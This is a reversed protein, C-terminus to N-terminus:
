LQQVTSSRCWITSVQSRVGALGGNPIDSDNTSLNVTGPTAASFQADLQTGVVQFDITVLEDAPLNFPTQTLTSFAGDVVKTIKANGADARAYYYTANPSDLTLCRLMCGIEENGPASPAVYKMVAVIRQDDFGGISYVWGSSDASAAFGYGETVDFTLGSTNLKEQINRTTQDAVLDKTLSLLGIVDNINRSM